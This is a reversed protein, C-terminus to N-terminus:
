ALAPLVLTELAWAAGDQDVPPAIAAAVGRVAPTANGMAIGLGAWAVMEMDNDNDGIAVTEAQAVGLHAALRQLGRGKNADPPIAELFRAHSRVIQLRGAFEQRLSPALADLRAPEAIILMKTPPRNVFTALDGVAEIKTQNLSTYFQSAPTRAAAYVRGDLYVNLHLGLAGIVAMFPQAVTLPIDCRFLSVGARLDRIEGGQYLIVPANVGLRTAHPTAGEITRGTAITLYAGRAMVKEAAALVAPSFTVNEGILTGDLDAAILRYGV